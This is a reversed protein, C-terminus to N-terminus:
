AFMDELETVLDNFLQLADEIPKPTTLDVGADKLLELPFKSGGSQLFTLYRDVAPQGEDMISKVIAMATSFGTAYKYVYFANYFHPIRSWGINAEPDLVLTDGHYAKNLESYIETFSAAHLPIGSEIREHCIKEFEAFMTQRYVTGRFQELFHNILNMRMHKDTTNQLLYQMLLGENVTSAVEAVFITYQAKNKPQHADSFYSHLAHGMEHALTFMSDLNDKHNLLVYPHVGYPGSSYAGSRKGENELVDIWRDNKAKELMSVYNEGLVSLANKMTEYAEHYPIKANSEPILPTYLDYFHLEDVGLVKQRLKLYREMPDMNAKVTDILNTYVSVPVDDKFLSAELASPYKRVDAFFVDTKMSEHLTAGLANIQRQYSKNFTLFANKRVDRDPSDLFEAYSGHTLETLQGEENEISEFKMDANNIMSFITDAGRSIQGTKALLEEMEPSLIHFKKRVLLDITHKYYELSEEQQYYTDLTESSLGLIQSPMYSTKASVDVYLNKAREMLSQYHPNTTDEDEHLHAYVYLKELLFDLQDDLQLTRLMEKASSVFVSERDAIETSVEKVTNFDDEWLSEDAYIDTLNWTMTGPVDKRKLQTMNTEEM